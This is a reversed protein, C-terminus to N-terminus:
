VCPLRLVAIPWGIWLTALASVATLALALRTMFGRRLGSDGAAGDRDDRLFRRHRRLLELGIGVIAALHLLWAAGLAATLRNTGALPRQHWGAECGLALGGYLVAFCSCWLALGAFVTWLRRMVPAPPREPAHGRATPTAAADPRELTDWPSDWASPDPDRLPPPLAPASGPAPAPPRHTAPHTM